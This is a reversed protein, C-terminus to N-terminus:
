SSASKHALDTVDRRDTSTIECIHRYRKRVTMESVDVVNAVDTQSVGANNVGCACYLAGAALSTPSIGASEVEESVSDLFSRASRLVSASNEIDLENIFQNLYAQPDTPPIQLGLENCVYRYTNLFGSHVNRNYADTGYLKSVSKIESVPRPVNAKRSAAYLSAASLEEIARGVLSGQKLLQRFIMSAIERVSKPLGLASGMRNIQGLGLSLSDDSPNNFKTWKNKQRLRGIRRKQEASLRNGNADMDGFGIETTLGRDHLLTTIPDGVRRQSTDSDSRSSSWDPGRDIADTSNVLGCSDCVYEGTVDDKVVDGCCEECGGVDTQSSNEAERVQFGSM